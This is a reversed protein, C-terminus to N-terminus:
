KRKQSQSLPLVMIGGVFGIMYNLFVKSLLPRIFLLAVLAGLPESLGQAHDHYV